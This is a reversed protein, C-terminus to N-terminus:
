KEGDKGEWDYQILLALSRVFIQTLVGGLFILSLTSVPISNSPGLIFSAIICVGAYFSYLAVYGALNVRQKIARDREDFAVKIWFRFGCDAIEFGQQVKWYLGPLYKQFIIPALRILAVIGLFVLGYLIIRMDFGDSTSVFLIIAMVLFFPNLILIAWARKQMENM